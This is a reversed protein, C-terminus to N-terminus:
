SCSQRIPPPSLHRGHGVDLFTGLRHTGHSCHHAVAHLRFLNPILLGLPVQDAADVAVAPVGDCFEKRGFSSVPLQVADVEVLINLGEGWPLLQGQHLGVLDCLLKRLLGPGTMLNLNGGVTIGLVNMGVEDDVGNGIFGPLLEPLIGGGQLLEPFQTILYAKGMIQRHQLRVFLATLLEGGPLVPSRLLALAPFEFQHKLDCLGHLFAAAPPIKKQQHFPCAVFHM